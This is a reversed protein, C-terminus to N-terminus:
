VRRSRPRTSGRLEALPSGPQGLRHFDRAHPIAAKSLHLTWQWIGQRKKMGYDRAVLEAKAASLHPAPVIHLDEFTLWATDAEPSMHAPRTTVSLLRVRGLRSIHLDTFLGTADDCARMHWHSGTFLFAHPWLRMSVPGGETRLDCALASGQSIAQTMIALSEAEISSPLPVAQGRLPGPLPPLFAVTPSASHSLLALLDFYGAASPEAIEPHFTPGAEYRRASLDYTLHTPFADRYRAFDRTLHNPTVGFSSCVRGRSVRGEFYVLLEIFALRKRSGETLTSSFSPTAM